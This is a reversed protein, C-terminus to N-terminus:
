HGMRACIPLLRDRRDDSPGTFQQKRVEPTMAEPYLWSERSKEVADLVKGWREIAAQTAM